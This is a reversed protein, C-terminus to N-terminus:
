YQFIQSCRHLDMFPWIPYFWLEVQLQEMTCTFNIDESSSGENQCFFLFLCSLCQKIWLFVCSLPAMFTHSLRVETSLSISYFPENVKDVHGNQRPFLMKTQRLFSHSLFFCVFLCFHAEFSTEPVKTHYQLRWSVDNVRPPCRGISSSSSLCFVNM